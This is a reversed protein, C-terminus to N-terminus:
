PRPRILAARRLGDHFYEVPRGSALHFTQVAAAVAANCCDDVLITPVHAVLELDALAGAYSHDGDVHAFDAAPLRQIAHSDVVVLTADIQYRGVLEAAHALAQDSDHDLRGDICLYRAAPAAAHMAALSYGARTGIELVRAPAAAACAAAKAAYHALAAYTCPFYDGPMWSATLRDAVASALEPTPIM